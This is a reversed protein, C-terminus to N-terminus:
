SQMTNVTPCQTLNKFNINKDTFHSYYDTEELTIACTFNEWYPFNRRGESLNSSWCQAEIIKTTKRLIAVQM